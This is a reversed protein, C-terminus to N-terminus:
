QWWTLLLCAMPRAERVCALMLAASSPHIPTSCPHLSTLRRPLCCRRIHWFQRGEYVVAHPQAIRTRPCFNLVPLSCTARSISMTAHLAVPNFSSPWAQLVALVNKSSTEAQWGLKCTGEDLSMCMESLEHQDPLQTVHQTVHVIRHSRNLDAGILACSNSGVLRASHSHPVQAGVLQRLPHM